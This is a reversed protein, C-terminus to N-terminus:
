NPWLKKRTEAFPIIKPSL